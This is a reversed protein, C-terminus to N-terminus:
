CNAVSGVTLKGYGQLQPSPDTLSFVSPLNHTIGRYCGRKATTYEFSNM